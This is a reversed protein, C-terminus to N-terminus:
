LCNVKSFTTSNTRRYCVPDKTLCSLSRISPLDGQLANPPGPGHEQKQLDEVFPNKYLQQGQSDTLDTSGVASTTDDIPKTADICETANTSETADIPEAEDTSGTANGILEAAADTSVTADMLEAADTSKTASMPEITDTSETANAPEAEADLATTDISEAAETPEAAANTSEATDTSETTSGTLEAADAPATTDTSEIADTPETTSTPEIADIPEAEDTSGTANSILEAKDTPATTDMLETADVLETANTLEAEADTSETGDTSEAANDMRGMNERNRRRQVEEDVWRKVHRAGATGLRVIVLLILLTTRLLEFILAHSLGWIERWDNKPEGVSRVSEVYSQVTTANSARPQRQQSHLGRRQSTNPEYRADGTYHAGNDDEKPKCHADDTYYTGDNYQANDNTADPLRPIKRVGSRPTEFLYAGGVELVSKRGWIEDYYDGVVWHRETNRM